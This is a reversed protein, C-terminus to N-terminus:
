SLLGCFVGDKWSNKWRRSNSNVLEIKGEGDVVVLANPAADIVRRFNKEAVKQATIDHSLGFTGIIRGDPAPLPVKTTSVWTEEDSSWHPNEEKGVLPEGTRMLAEEDARAENAYESPFFDGDSKGVMDEPKCGLHDALARSVRTFRCEQDKFYIVDPLHELITYLLFREQEFSSEARRREEVERQFAAGSKLDLAAPLSRALVVVGVCSVSATLLKVAGSFRYAPWWFLGAEILHVTGCSFFILGLFVYFIPPFRVKKTKAVFYIVICPVAFYAGFTSIDSVIHLWGVGPSEGWATGCNWRAPFGETYFLRTVFDWM